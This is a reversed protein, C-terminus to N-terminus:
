KKKNEATIDEFTGYDKPRYMRPNTTRESLTGLHRIYPGVKTYDFDAKCVSAPIRLRGSYWGVKLRPYQEHIYKALMNVERPSSDGGMFAICTIDHGYEEVFDDIADINLPLGIDDWLYHSHCCPCHCPCNAINIALSVEDPIEQFVVDVNAYKLM